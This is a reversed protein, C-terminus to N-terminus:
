KMFLEINHGRWEGHLMIGHERPSDELATLQELLHKRMKIPCSTFEM